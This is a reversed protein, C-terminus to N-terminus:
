SSQTDEPSLNIPLFCHRQGARSKSPKRLCKLHAVSYSACLQTDISSASGYLYHWQLQGKVTYSFLSESCVGWNAAEGTFTLLFCPMKLGKPNAKTFCIIQTQNFILEPPLFVNQMRLYPAPLLIFCVM